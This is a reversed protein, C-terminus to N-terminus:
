SIKIEHVAKTKAEENKPLIIRLIGNEYKADVKDVNVSDPLTFTRRFTDYSFEKRTFKKEKVENEVKHEASIVLMDNDTEIKFDEKNFGPASLEVDYEKENEIVNVAATGVSFEKAFLTDNFFHDVLSGFPSSYIAPSETIETGGQPKNWKTISM